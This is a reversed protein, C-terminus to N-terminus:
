QMLGYWNTVAFVFYMVALAGISLGGDWWKRLKGIAWVLLLPNSIMWFKMAEYHDLTINNCLTGVISLITGVIVITIGLTEYKNESM